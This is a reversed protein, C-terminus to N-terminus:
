ESGDSKREETGDMEGYLNNNDVEKYNEGGGEEGGREREECRDRERRM